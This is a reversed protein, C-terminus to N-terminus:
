HSDNNNIISEKCIYYENHDQNFFLQKTPEHYHM